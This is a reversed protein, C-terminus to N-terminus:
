IEGLDLEELEDEDVESAAKKRASAKKAPTPSSKRQSPIKASAKKATRKPPEPAEEEEEDEEDEDEEEDEEDDDEDEEEPEPQPAKKKSRRRPAPEEEEEEEEEDDEDAETDELDPASSDDLESAPFTQVVVSQLKGEYEEDELTVGIIKGVVLNPNLKVKQKPIAKGAALFLNRVKWLQNDQLKCYYPFKRDTYKRTLAITFLWQPEKKEKTPADVVGTIRAEYDGMPVRKKNFNGGDKVNSFDLVQSSAKDAV